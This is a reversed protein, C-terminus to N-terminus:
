KGHNGRLLQEPPQQDAQVEIPLPHREPPNHPPPQPKIKPAAYIHSSSRGARKLYEHSLHGLWDNTYVFYAEQLMLLPVDVHRFKLYIEGKSTKVPEELDTFFLGREPYDLWHCHAYQNRIRKCFRLAGLMADYQDKLGIADYKPRMIADGINIRSEEGKTRFIVRLATQRDENLASALCAAFEFELEGYGALLRGIIQGEEPYNSLSPIISEVM